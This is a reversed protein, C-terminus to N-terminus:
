DIQSELVKLYKKASEKISDYKEKKVIRYKEFNMSPPKYLRIPSFNWDDEVIIKGRHVIEKTGGTSSCVVECGSAQADVVVNPCHDLYALHIFKESRKYVHEIMSKGHIKLLPKNPLRSSGLRSPIIGISKM